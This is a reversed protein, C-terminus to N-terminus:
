PVSREDDDLVRFDAWLSEAESLNVQVEQSYASSKGGLVENPAFSLHVTRLLKIGAASIERMSELHQMGCSKM